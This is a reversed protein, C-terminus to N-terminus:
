HHVDRGVAKYSRSADINMAKAPSLISDV